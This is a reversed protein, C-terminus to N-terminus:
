NITYNPNCADEPLDYNSGAIPQHDGAFFGSNGDDGGAGNSDTTDFNLSQLSALWKTKTSQIPILLSDETRSVAPTTATSRRRKQYCYHQYNSATPNM